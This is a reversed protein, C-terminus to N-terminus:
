YGLRENSTSQGATGEDLKRIGNTDGFRERDVDICVLGSGLGVLLEDLDDFVVPVQPWTDNYTLKAELPRLVQLGGRITMEAVGLVRPLLGLGEAELNMENRDGVINCAHCMRM